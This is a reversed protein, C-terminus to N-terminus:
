SALAIGITFCTVLLMNCGHHKEDAPICLITLISPLIFSALYLSTRLSFRSWADSSLTLHEAKLVVIVLPYVLSLVPTAKPCMNEHGQSAWGSVLSVSSIHTSAQLHCNM